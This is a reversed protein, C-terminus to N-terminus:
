LEFSVDLWLVLEKRRNVFERFDKSNAVFHQPKRRKEKTGQGRTRDVTMQSSNGCGSLSGLLSFKHVFSWGAGKERRFNIKERRALSLNEKQLNREKKGNDTAIKSRFAFPTSERLSTSSCLVSLFSM